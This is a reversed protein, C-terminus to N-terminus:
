GHLGQMFAQTARWWGTADDWDFKSPGWLVIGDGLGRVTKLQFSWYGADVYEFQKPTGDHYQPWLYFYVPKGAVLSRAEAAAAQARKAWADRDDNFTYAPPFLADVHTALERAYPLDAAAVRTLTNSGYFGVVKGPAAARAWDALTELIKLNRQADAGKLPLTEVDIVLPGPNEIHSRVLAQFAARDPLTGHDENHPWISREYLINSAILGDPNTNPKGRYFMDDYVVFAGGATTTSSPTSAHEQALGPRVHASLVVLLCVLITVPLPRKM